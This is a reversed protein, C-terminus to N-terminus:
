YYASIQLQPSAQLPNARYFLLQWSDSWGLSVHFFLILTKKKKEKSNSVFIPSRGSSSKLAPTRSCSTLFRTVFPQGSMIVRTLLSSLLDITMTVLSFGQKPARRCALSQLRKAVPVKNLSLFTAPVSLCSYNFMASSIEQTFSLLFNCIDSEVALFNVRAKM